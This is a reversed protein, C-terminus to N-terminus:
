RLPRELHRGHERVRLCRHQPRIGGALDSGTTDGSTGVVGALDISTTTGLVGIGTASVGELGTGTVAGIGKLAGTDATGQTITTLATAPNDANLM